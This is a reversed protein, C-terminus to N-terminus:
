RIPEIAIIRDHMTRCRSEITIYPRSEGPAPLLAGIAAVMDAREAVVQLRDQDIGGIAVLPVAAAVTKRSAVELDAVGVVPDPADKAGTEFVPGLAVYSLLGSALAEDIQSLSHTSLGVSLDPYVRQIERPPLDDQGVHVGFAGVAAALDARDNIILPASAQGRRDRVEEALRQQEAAPRNKVRLQVACIGADFMARACDILDLGVRQAADACAIGYLGRRNKWASSKM